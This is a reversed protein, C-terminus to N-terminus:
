EVEMGSKEETAASSEAAAGTAKAYALTAGGELAVKGAADAAAVLDKPVHTHKFSSEACLWGMELELPKEKSTDRILHLSCPPFLSLGPLFILATTPSYRLAWRFVRIYIAIFCV